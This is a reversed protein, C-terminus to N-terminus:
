GLVGPDFPPESIILPDTNTIGDAPFRVRGESGVITSPSQQVSLPNSLNKNTTDRRPISGGEAPLAGGGNNIPDRVPPRVPGGNGLNPETGVIVPTCGCPEGGEPKEIIIIPKGGTTDITKNPGSIIPGGTSIDENGGPKTPDVGGGDDIIDEVFASPVRRLRGEGFAQLGSKLRGRGM